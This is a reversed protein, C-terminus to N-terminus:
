FTSCGQRTLWLVLVLMPQSPPPPGARPCDRKLVAGPGRWHQWLAQGHECCLGATLWCLLRGGGAGCGACYTICGSPKLRAKFIFTIKTQNKKKLYFCKISVPYKKFYNTLSSSLPNNNYESIHSKNSGRLLARCMFGQLWWLEHRHPTPAWPVWSHLPALSQALMPLARAGQLRM